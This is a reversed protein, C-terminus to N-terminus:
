FALFQCSLVTVSHKSALVEEVTKQLINETPGEDVVLNMLDVKTLVDLVYMNSDVVPLCSVSKGLFKLIAHHVTHKPKVSVLNEWTGIKLDELQTQMCSALPM